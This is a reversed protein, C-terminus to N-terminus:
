VKIKRLGQYTPLNELPKDVITQLNNISGLLNSDNLIQTQNITYSENEYTPLNELPLDIIQQLREISNVPIQNVLIQTDKFQAKNFGKKAFYLTEENSYASIGTITWKTGEVDFGTASLDFKVTAKFYNETFSAVTKDSFVTINGSAVYPPIIYFGLNQMIWQIFPM